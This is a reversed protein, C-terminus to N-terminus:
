TTVQPPALGVWLAKIYTLLTPFLERENPSTAWELILMAYTIAIMQAAAAADCAPNVEGCAQGERLINTLATAFTFLLQRREDFISRSRLAARAMGRALEPEAEASSVLMGLLAEIRERTTQAQFEPEELLQAVREAQIAGVETLVAEKDAFYNFFTGVGVHAAQAIQRITTKAVGQRRFLDLAAEFIRRRLEDHKQKRKSLTQGTEDTQTERSADLADLADVSEIGEAVM